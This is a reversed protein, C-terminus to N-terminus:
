QVAYLRVGPLHKGVKSILGVPETSPSPIACQESLGLREVREVWRSSGALGLARKFRSRTCGIAIVAGSRRREELRRLEEDTLAVEPDEGSDLVEVEVPLGNVLGYKRAIRKLPADELERLSWLPLLAEVRGLDVFIGFGVSGPEVLRGRFRKGPEISEPVVNLEMSLYNAAAERDAGELSVKVPGRGEVEYDVDLGSLLGEIETELSEIAGEDSVRENITVSSM